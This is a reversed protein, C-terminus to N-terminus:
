GLVQDSCPVKSYQGESIRRKHAVKKALNMAPKEVFLFFVWATGISVALAITLALLQGLRNPHLRDALNIIKVGFLYHVLYLSYSIQGFFLLIPSKANWFIILLATALGIVGAQWGHYISALACSLGIFVAYEFLPSGLNRWRFTAIGLVFFSAFGSVYVYNDAPLLVNLVLFSLLVIRPKWDAPKTLLPFMAGILLYFQFEIALTWFVPNLWPLGLIGNLYGIHATIQLGDVHFATGRNGPLTASVGALILSLFAALLYPPDLRVVRRLLFRPADVWQYDSKRLSYPIVFGSIVFFVFVGQFALDGFYKVLGFTIYTHNGGVLHFFCVSLSAIGRLADVGRLRESGKITEVATGVM